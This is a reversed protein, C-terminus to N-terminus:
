LHTLAFHDLKRQCKVLFQRASIEFYNQSEKPTKLFWIINKPVQSIKEFLNVEWLSEGSKIRIERMMERAGNAILMHFDKSIM